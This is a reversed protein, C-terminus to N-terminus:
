GLRESKNFEFPRRMQRTFAAPWLHAVPVNLQPNLKFDHTNPSVVHPDQGYSTADAHVTCMGCGTVAIVAVVISRHHNVPM